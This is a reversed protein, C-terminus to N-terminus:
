PAVTFHAEISWGNGGQDIITTQFVYSGPLKEGMHLFDANDWLFVPNHSYGGVHPFRPDVSADMAPIAGGFQDFAKNDHYSTVSVVIPCLSNPIIPGSAFDPSSGMVGPAPVNMWAVWVASGNAFEASKFHVGEHYGVAALGNAVDSDYPPPEPSIGPGVGGLKTNPMYYPPPLLANLTAFQEAYGDDGTGVPAAFLHIDVPKWIPNGIPTIQVGQTPPPGARLPTIALPTAAIAIALLRVLLRKKLRMIDTEKREGSGIRLSDRV